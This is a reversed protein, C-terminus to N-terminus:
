AAWKRVVGDERLSSYGLDTWGAEVTLPRRMRSLEATIAGHCLM